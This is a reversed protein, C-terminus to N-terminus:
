DRLPPAADSPRLLSSVRSSRVLPQRLLWPRLRDLPGAGRPRVFDVDGVDGASFGRWRVVGLGAIESRWYSLPMGQCVTEGRLLWYLKWHVGFRGGVTLAAVVVAAAVSCLLLRRRTPRIM